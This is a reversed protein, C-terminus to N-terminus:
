NVPCPGESPADPAWCRAGAQEMLGRLVGAQEDLVARIDQGGLIIREFTDAYVQNFQGNLDGMGMPLLVPLADPAGSMAALAPGSAKVSAPMDDPLAVDMVPFFNTARLTAVQTDPQMM